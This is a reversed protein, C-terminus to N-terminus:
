MYIEFKLNDLQCGFLRQHYQEITPAATAHNVARLAKHSAKYKHKMSSQFLLRRDEFLTCGNGHFGALSLLGVLQFCAREMRKHSEDTHLGNAVARHVIEYFIMMNQLTNQVMGNNTMLDWNPGSARLAAVYHKEANVYDQACKFALAAYNHAM